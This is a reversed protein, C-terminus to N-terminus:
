KTEAPVSAWGLLMMFLGFITLFFLLQPQSAMEILRTTAIEAVDRRPLPDIIREGAMLLGIRLAQIVLTAIVGSVLVRAISRDRRGAARGLFWCTMPVTLLAFAFVLTELGKM